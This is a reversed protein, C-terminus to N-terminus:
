RFITHRTCKTDFYTVVKLFRLPHKVGAENKKKPIAFFSKFGPPDALSPFLETFQKGLLARPVIGCAIRPTARAFRTCPVRDTRRGRGFICRGSKRHTCKKYTIVAIQVWLCACRAPCRRRLAAGSGAASDLATSLHFLLSCQSASWALLAVINRLPPMHSM